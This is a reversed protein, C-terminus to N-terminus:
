QAIKLVNVLLALRLAITVAQVYKAIVCVCAPQKTVCRIRIVVRRQQVNQFVNIVRQVISMLHVHLHDACVNYLQRIVHKM